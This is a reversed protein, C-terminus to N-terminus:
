WFSQLKLIKIIDSENVNLEIPISWSIKTSSKKYQGIKFFNNGLSPMLWLKIGFFTAAPSQNFDLTLKSVELEHSMYKDCINRFETFSVAIDKIKQKKLFDTLKNYDIM